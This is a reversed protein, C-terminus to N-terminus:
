RHVIGILDLWYRKIVASGTPWGCNMQCIYYKQYKMSIEFFAIKQKIMNKCKISVVQQM